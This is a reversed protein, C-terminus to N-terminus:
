GNGTIRNDRTYDGVWAANHWITIGTNFIANIAEIAYQPISGQADCGVTKVYNWSFRGKTNPVKTYNTKYGFMSFYM